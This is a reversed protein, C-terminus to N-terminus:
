LSGEKRSEIKMSIDERTVQVLDGSVNNSAHVVVDVTLIRGRVADQCILVIGVGDV